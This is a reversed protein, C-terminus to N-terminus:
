RTKSAVKIKKGADQLPDIPEICQTQLTSIHQYTTGEAQCEAPGGVETTLKGSDIGLTLAANGSNM